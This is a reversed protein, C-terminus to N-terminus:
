DYVDIDIEELIQDLTDRLKRSKGGPLHLISSGTGQSDEIVLQNEPVLIQNGNKLTLKVHRPKQEM